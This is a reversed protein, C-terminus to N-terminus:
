KRSSPAGFSVFFNIVAGGAQIADGNKLDAVSIRRQNLCTGNTSRLDKLIIRDRTLFEISAHKRSVDPDNLGVDAGERGIVTARKKIQYRLGTDSGVVVQLSAKVGEPLPGELPDKGVKALRPRTTDTATDSDVLVEEQVAESATAAEGAADELVSVQIVTEGITLEDLNRIVAEWIRGGNLLTGNTSDLDRVLLENNEYLIQVHQKSSASDTIIIDSDTRGLLTSKKWLTKVMGREPGSIFTLQVHFGAPLGEEGDFGSNKIDTDNM